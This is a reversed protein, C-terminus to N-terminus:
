AIGVETLKSELEKEDLLNLLGVIKTNPGGKLEPAIHTSAIVLDYNALGSKSRGFQM